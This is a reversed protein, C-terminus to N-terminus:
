SNIAKFYRKDFTALRGFQIIFFCLLWYFIPLSWNLQNWALHNGVHQAALEFGSLFLLISVTSWQVISVFDKM